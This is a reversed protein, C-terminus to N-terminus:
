SPEVAKMVAKWRLDDLSAANLLGSQAAELYRILGGKKKMMRRGADFLVFKLLLACTFVAPTWLETQLVPLLSYFIQLMAYFYLLMIEWRPTGMYHSALRGTFSALALANFVGVVVVGFLSINTMHDIVSLVICAVAAVAILGLAKWFPRDRAPDTPLKVSSVDLSLYCWWIACGSVVDFGDSVCEVWKLKALPTLAAVTFWIYLLLWGYWMCEWGRTFQSLTEQAIPAVPEVELLNAATERLWKRHWKVFVFIVTAQLAHLFFAESPHGFVFTPVDAIGPTNKLAAWMTAAGLGPVGLIVAMVTLKKARLDWKAAALRMEAEARKLRQLELEVANIQAPEAM